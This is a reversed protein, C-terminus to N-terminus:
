FRQGETRVGSSRIRELEAEMSVSLRSGWSNIQERGVVFGVVFHNALVLDHLRVFLRKGSWKPHGADRDCTVTMVLERCDDVELRYYLGTVVADHLYELEESETLGM